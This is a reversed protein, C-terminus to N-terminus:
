STKEVRVPRLNVNESNWTNKRIGIFMNQFGPKYMFLIPLELQTRRAGSLNRFFEYIAHGFFQQFDDENEIIRISEIDVGRPKIQQEEEEVEEAEEELELVEEEFESVQQPQIQEQQQELENPIEFKKLDQVFFKYTLEPIKSVKYIGYGLWMTKPRFHNLKSRIKHMIENKMFNHLEENRQFSQDTFMLLEFIYYYLHNM